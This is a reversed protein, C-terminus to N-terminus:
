AVKGYVRDASNDKMRKRWFEVDYRLVYERDDDVELPYGGAMLVIPSGDQAWGILPEWDGADWGQLVICVGEILGQHVNPRM